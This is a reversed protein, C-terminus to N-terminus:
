KKYKAKGAILKSTYLIWVLLLACLSLFSVILATMSDGEFPTNYDIKTVNFVVLAITVISFIITFVKM